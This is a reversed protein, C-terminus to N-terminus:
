DALRREIAEVARNRASVATARGQFFPARGGGRGDLIACVEPGLLTLDAGSGEGAVLLFGGDDGSGVTLLAIRDPALEVLKKGVEQLFPLDRDDWHASAVRSDSAALGEAASRALEGLLRRKERAM